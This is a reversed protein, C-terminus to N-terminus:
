RSHLERFAMTEMLAEESDLLSFANLNYEDLLKLVKLRESSPINFKWCAGPKNRADFAKRYGEFRWAETFIVCMTYESQQLFHRRHTGVYPGLRCIQPERNGGGQSAAASFVYISVKRDAMEDDAKNFAFFAAVNSSRTWDLLPSPFGHHRLYAIYSYAPLRGFTLDVSFADYERVLREVELYGPIQWENGTFSEVQPKVRSILRYYDQFLMGPQNSRELTTALPWCSNEQGRFLMPLASSESGDVEGRLDKLGQEFEEWSNVDIEEPYEQM